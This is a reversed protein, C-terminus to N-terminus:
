EELYVNWCIKGYRQVQGKVEALQYAMGKTSSSASMMWWFLVVRTSTLAIFYSDLTLCPYCSVPHFSIIVMRILALRDESMRGVLASVCGDIYLGSDTPPTMEITTLLQCLLDM